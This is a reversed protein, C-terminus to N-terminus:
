TQSFEFEAQKPKQQVLNTVLSRTKYSKNELDSSQFESRFSTERPIWTLKQNNEEQQKKKSQNIFQTNKEKKGVETKILSRRPSTTKIKIIPPM